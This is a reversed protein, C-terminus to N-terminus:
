ISEIAPLNAQLRLTAIKLSMDIISIKLTEQSIARLHIGCFMNSSLDVNTWTIGGPLLGNGSGINVLM